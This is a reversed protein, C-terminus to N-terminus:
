HTSIAPPAVSDVTMHRIILAALSLTIAAAIFIQASIAGGPRPKVEVEDCQPSALLSDGEHAM